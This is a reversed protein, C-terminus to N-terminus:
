LCQKVFKLCRIIKSLDEYKKELIFGAKEYIETVKKEQDYGIELYISGNPHLFKYANKAIRHYCELGDNDAFLANSPEYLMTEKSIEKSNRAIYPPNSIIIDFLQNEQLNEFWDSLLFNIDLSYRQANKQAIEIAKTSIDVAIATSNPIELMLTIILCGSGTGLDLIKPNQHNNELIAEIVIESDPRPILVNSDIFFDRGFFEKRGIIYALPELKIRRSVISEITNLSNNSLDEDSNLVLYEQTKNLVHMMIIRAELNPLSIKHSKLKKAIGNIASKINM